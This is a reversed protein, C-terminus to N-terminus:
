SFGMHRDFNSQITKQIYEYIKEETEPSKEDFIVVFIKEAGERIGAVHGSTSCVRTKLKLQIDPLDGGSPLFSEADSVTCAMGAASIDLIRGSYHQNGQRINYKADAGERCYARVYKRRGNAKQQSLVNFIRTRIADKRQRSSIFGCALDVNRLWKGIVSSQTEQSLVGLRVDHEALVDKSETVIRYWEAEEPPDDINIIIIAGPYNRAVPILSTHDTFVCAQYESRVLEGIYAERIWHPPSFFLVMRGATSATDSSAADSTM